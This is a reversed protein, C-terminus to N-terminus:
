EINIRSEGIITLQFEHRLPVGIVEPSVLVLNGDNDVVHRQSRVTVVCQWIGNDSLITRTFNLRAIEPGNELDYRANDMITTGDSATWTIIASPNSDLGRGCVLSLPDDLLVFAQTPMQQPGDFRFSPGDSNVVM